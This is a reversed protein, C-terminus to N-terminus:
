ITHLGVLSGIYMGLLISLLNYVIILAIKFVNQKKTEFKRDFFKVINASKGNKILIFYNIIVISFYIAINMLLERSYDEVKNKLILAVVSRVNFFITASLVFSATIDPRAKKPNVFKLM